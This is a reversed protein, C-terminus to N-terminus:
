QSVAPAGTFKSRTLTQSVTPPLVESSQTLLFPATLTVQKIFNNQPPAGSVTSLLFKLEPFLETLFLSFTQIFRDTIYVFVNGEREGV